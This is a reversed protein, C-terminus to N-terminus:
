EREFGLRNLRGRWVENPTGHGGFIVWIFNRKDAANTVGAPTADVAITYSTKGAFDSPLLFKQEVREWGIGSESAYVADLDGGWAYFRGGYYTMYPNELAPCWMGERDTELSAWSLGNNSIWPITKENNALPMGVALVQGAGGGTTYNSYYIHNTPFGAPVPEGDTWAQGDSTICFVAEGSENRRIAVLTAERETVTNPTLAAVLSLVNGSLGEAKQWATGDTDATYVDEGALMYLRGACALLSTVDAEAPLGAVDARSWGYAGPAGSTRYLEAPSTFLLVDGNVAVAKQAGSNVFASLADGEGDMRTWTLSDPEQRHVRIQLTYERTTIADGAHVTLKVGNNGTANMAPLLNHYSSTSVTTDGSTVGWVVSLQDIKISDIITDADVPLSDVNYILNNLQDIEFLYDVGHITDLSFAHITADASFVVEEDSNLCSSVAVSVLLFGVIVSLFRTRM